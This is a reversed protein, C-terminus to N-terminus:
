NGAALGELEAVVDAKNWENGNIIRVIRGEKDLLVTRLNHAILGGEDDSISLGLGDALKMITGQDATVFDWTAFDAHYSQGYSKLVAPTDFKPDFSISILHWKGTIGNNKRLSKQISAFYESM